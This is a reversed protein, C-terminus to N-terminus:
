YLKYTTKLVKFETRRNLKNCIEQQEPKLTLIYAESLEQEETLFPYLKKLRKDVVVPKSRGYGVPTLRDRAIGHQVLWDCVAQARKESLQQNFQDNGVMDTHASLEITINPNDTLMKVLAQLGAESEPTITWKGFEYQVNDVEVPRTLSKLTFDQTYTKSDKVGDTSVTQKQNLYGRGTALMVYQVDRNLKLKYTGDRRVSVRTNTGDTGVLRLAADAIGEGDTDSIRGELMLVMEPLTFRYLKDVGKKQNRSSSFYGDHGNSEWTMAFDDGTSNLPNGLNYVIWSGTSDPVAHFLDLGGYGPHGNSSFYLTGDPHVSPFMEDSSTNIREGLNHVGVWETGDLEAMWIDKGGLGGPADSVFYLTDGTPCLAPHGVSITSDEFLRVEQAEGWEGSARQSCMIKTGQDQGSMAKSYTFYMTKGDASFCCVGKEAVGVSKGISTTTSDGKQTEEAEGSAAGAGYLGEPQSLDEWEGAANRRMSFLQFAQQGTINSPRVNKKKGKTLSRNSTFMMVSADRTTFMPAFTSGRKGNLDNAPTVKHRTAEKKWEEIRTCAYHGARAVYDTPHAEIYATYLKDADKYKGQAQLSQAARIVATTDPHNYRIAQAYYGSARAPQNIHYYCEALQYTVHAKLAREKKANIRSNCQKYMDAALYYEGIQYKKDARAVRKKISCSTLAGAILLVLMIYSKVIYSTRNLM